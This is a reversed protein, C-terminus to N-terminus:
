FWYAFKVSLFFLDYFLVFAFFSIVSGFYFKDNARRAALFSVLILLFVEFTVREGNPIYCWVKLYSFSVALLAYAAFLFDTTNKNKRLYLLSLVFAMILLAPFVIVQGASGGTYGPGAKSWLEFLGAFPVTVAGGWIPIAKLGYDPFFKLVLFGRWILLPIVSCVLILASSRNKRQFFESAALVLVAIGATERILMACALFLASPVFKERLYFFVGGLLFAAALSEPLGVNLSVLFAPILAYLLAWFPSKKYFLAIRVLFFAAALNSLVILYIMTFAFREPQGFAALATMLPYGIRGYRYPPNDIWKHYRLLDDSFRQLLPDFAIFYMFQGDYGQEYIKLTDRLEPRENLFPNQKSWRQSLQLFGSYDGYRDRSHVMAYYFFLFVLLCVVTGAVSNKLSTQEPVSWVIKYLLGLQPLMSLLAFLLFTWWSLFLRSDTLLPQIMLALFLLFVLLQLIRSIGKTVLPIGGPL